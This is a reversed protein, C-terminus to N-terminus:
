HNNITEMYVRYFDHKTAEPYTGRVDDVLNIDYWSGTYYTEHDCMRDEIYEDMTYEERTRRKCEQHCNGLEDLFEKYNDKHAVMGAMLAVFDGEYGNDRQEKKYEEFQKNGFCFGVGYKEFLKTQEEQVWLSAEGKNRMDDGIMLQGYKLLM